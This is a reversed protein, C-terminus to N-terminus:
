QHYDGFIALAANIKTIFLENECETKAKFNDCDIGHLTNNASLASSQQVTLDDLNKANLFFSRAPMLFVLKVGWIFLM